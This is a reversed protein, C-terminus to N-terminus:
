RRSIYSIKWGDLAFSCTLNYGYTWMMRTENTHDYSLQVPSKYVYNEDMFYWGLQITDTGYLYGMIPKTDYTNNNYNTMNIDGKTIVDNGAFVVWDGFNDDGIATGWFAEIYKEYVTNSNAKSAVIIPKENYAMFNSLIEKYQNYSSEITKNGKEDKLYNGTGAESENGGTANSCSTFVILLISTLVIIIKKM